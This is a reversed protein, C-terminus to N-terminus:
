NEKVWDRCDTSQWLEENYVVDFESEINDQKKISWRFVNDTGDIPYVGWNEGGDHTTIVLNTYNNTNDKCMVFMIGDKQSFFVPLFPNYDSYEAPIKIDQNEWTIGGDITKYLRLVGETPLSRVIWGVKSNIFLISGGVITTSPDNSSAIEDWHNGGDSTKYLSIFQQGAGITEVYAKWGETPSIFAYQESEYSDDIINFTYHIIGHNPNWETISDPINTIIAYKSPVISPM